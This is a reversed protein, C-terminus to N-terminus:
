RFSFNGHVTGTLNTNGDYTDLEYWGGLKNTFQLQLYQPVGPSDGAGGLWLVAGLPSWGSATYSGRLVFQPNVGTSSSVSEDFTGSSLQYVTRATSGFATTTVTHGPWSTPVCAGNTFLQFIAAQSMSSMQEPAPSAVAFPTLPATLISDVWGMSAEESSSVLGPSYNQVSNTTFIEASVPNVFGLAQTAVMGGVNPPGEYQLNLWAQKAFSGSYTNVLSGTTDASYTGVATDGDSNLAFQSFTNSGFSFWASEGTYPDYALASWGAWNSPVNTVTVTMIGSSVAGYQNSVTVRFQGSNTPILFNGYNGYLPDPPPYNAGNCRWQYSLNGPGGADVTLPTYWPYSPVPAFVLVNTTYSNITPPGLITAQVISSTVSGLLNSVVVYYALNVPPNLYLSAGTAGPVPAGVPFDGPTYLDEGWPFVWLNSNAPLSYWQYSLQTGTAAVAFKQAQSYWWHQGGGPMLGVVRSNQPERVIQPAVAFASGVLELGPEMTFTLAKAGTLTDGNGDTWGSFGWTAPPVATVTYNRGVELWANSYNPVIGGPGSYNVTLQSAVVYDVAVTVTASQNGSNDVAYVQVWNTGPNLAIEASWDNTGDAPNWGGGNVQYQVSAVQWNDAATGSITFSANTWREGNLPARVRVSPALVDKFNPAYGVNTIVTISNPQFGNLIPVNVGLPNPPADSAIESGVMTFQLTKNTSFIDQYQPFVEVNTLGVDGTWYVVILTNVNVRSWGSFVFGGAPVATMTYKQGVNLWANSYNPWVTGLGFQDYFLQSTPQYRVKVTAKASVNSQGDVAYAQIVNTGALLKVGLSWPNWGAAATWGNSNVNVYVANSSVGGVVRGTLAYTSLTSYSFLQGNVADSFGVVPQSAGRAETGTLALAWGVLAVLWCFAPQWHKWSSNGMEKTNM